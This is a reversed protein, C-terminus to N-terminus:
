WQVELHGTLVMEEFREREFKRILDDLWVCLVVKKDFKKRLVKMRMMCEKHQENSCCLRNGSNMMM